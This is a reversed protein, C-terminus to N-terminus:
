HVFIIILQKLVFGIFIILCNIFINLSPKM